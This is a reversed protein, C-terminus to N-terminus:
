ENEKGQCPFLAMFLPYHQLNKPRKMYGGGGKPEQIELICLVEKGDSNWITRGGM